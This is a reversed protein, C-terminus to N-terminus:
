HLYFTFHLFNLLSIGEFLSSTNKIPGEEMCVVAAHNYQLNLAIMINTLTTIVFSFALKAMLQYM